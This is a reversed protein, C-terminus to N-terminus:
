IFNLLFGDTSMSTIVRKLYITGMVEFLHRGHDYITFLYCSTLSAFSSFNYAHQNIGYTNYGYPCAHQTGYKPYFNNPNFLVETKM